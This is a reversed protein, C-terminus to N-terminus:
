SRRRAKGAPGAPKAPMAGVYALALDVWSRLAGADAVAADVWVFGKAVRDGMAMPSAGPRALAEAEGEPGVRFLYRGKDAGCLMNGRHMFCVGGFMRVEPLAGLPALAARMREILAPDPAM